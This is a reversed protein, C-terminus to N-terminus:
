KPRASRTSRRKSRQSRGRPGGSPRSRGSRTRTRYDVEFGIAHKGESLDGLILLGLFLNNFTHFFHDRTRKNAGSAEYSKFTRLDDVPFFLRPDGNTAETAFKLLIDAEKKNSISKGRTAREYEKAFRKLCTGLHSSFTTREALASYLWKPIHGTEEEKNACAKPPKYGPEFISHVGGDSEVSLGCGLSLAKEAVSAAFKQPLSQCHYTARM